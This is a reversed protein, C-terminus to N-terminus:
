ETWLQQLSLGKKCNASSFDSGSIQCCLDSFHPNLVPSLGHHPHPALFFDESPHPLFLLRASPPGRHAEALETPRRMRTRESLRLPFQSYENVNARLMGSVDHTGAM